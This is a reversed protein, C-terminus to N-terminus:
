DMCSIKARHIYNERYKTIKNKTDLLEPIHEIDILFKIEVVRRKKDSLFNIMFDGVYKRVTSGHVDVGFNDILKVDYSGAKRGLFIRYNPDFFRRAIVDGNDFTIKMYITRNHRYPVSFMNWAHWLGLYWALPRIKNVFQQAVYHKPQFWFISYILFILICITYWIYLLVIM